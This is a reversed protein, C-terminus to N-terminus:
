IDAPLSIIFTTGENKRTTFNITGGTIEIINKTITLGLGMGTSKTTFNPTFLKDIFEDAIGMGNDEIEIVVEKEVKHIRVKILGAKDSTISQIANKLLNNFVQTLQEPDALVTIDKSEGEFSIQVQEHNHKFLQVVSYLKAAVDM